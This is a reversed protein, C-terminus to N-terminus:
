AVFERGVSLGPGQNLRLAEVCHVYKAVSQRQLNFTQVMRATWNPFSDTFKIELVVGSLNVAAGNHVTLPPLRKARSGTLCRDFTIRLRDDTPSVYAERLYSVYATAQAGLRRQFTHFNELATLDEMSNSQGFISSAEPRVGRFLHQAGERTIACRQKRIVDTERRKIELFVPNSPESDYYRIRLKFRNKIGQCTQHYLALSSSDLYLSCVRYSPDKGPRSHKDPTLYVRVYDRIAEAQSQSVLYKLEFRRTQMRHLHAV